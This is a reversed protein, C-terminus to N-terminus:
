GRGKRIYGGSVAVVHGSLELELLQMMVEHVPIHTRSALIDVPTARSGVNALLAPFPLEEKCDIQEFRENQVSSASFDSWRILTEMEEMIDSVKQVLCAGQKILLNCGRALPNHISGPLAFVERGQETAYHATILSGSKEAAEIVLVGLCLGSIIRNRRPFYDSRPKVHPHFESILAGQEVIRRALTKHRNPYVTNLGCGLVGITEGGGKLAGDHAYGDIGLALGSTVTLHQKALEQAFYRAHNLGDISANRSGVIAIQPQGMSAVSGEVFLVPPPTETQKLLLPYHKDDLLMISKQNARSEWEFCKDVDASSQHHLYHAQTDSFGLSRLSQKSSATINLPSDLAILRQFTKPGVRPTFYLKLWAARESETM